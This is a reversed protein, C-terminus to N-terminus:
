HVERRGSTLQQECWTDFMAAALEGCIVEPAINEGAPLHLVAVLLGQDKVYLAVSSTSLDSPHEFHRQQILRM